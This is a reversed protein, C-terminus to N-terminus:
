TPSTRCTTMWATRRASCGQENISELHGLLIKQDQQKDLQNQLDKNKKRLEREREELEKVKKELKNINDLHEKEGDELLSIQYETTEMDGQTDALKEEAEARRAVEERLMM